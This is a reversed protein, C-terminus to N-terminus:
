NKEASIKFYKKEKPAMEKRDIQRVHDYGLVHLAGHVVLRKVEEDFSAGYSAAQEAAKEVSIFIDGSKAAAFSIVDTPYNKSRYELNIKKIFANDTFVLNIEFGGANESKLIGFVVAAPDFILRTKKRFVVTVSNKKAKVM